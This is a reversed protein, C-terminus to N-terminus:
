TTKQYICVFTATTTDASSGNNHIMWNGTTNMYFLQPKCNWSANPRVGEPCIAKLVYGTPVSYVLGNIIDTQSIAYDGGASISTSTVISRIPYIDYKTSSELTAIHDSLTNSLKDAM